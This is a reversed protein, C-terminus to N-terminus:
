RTLALVHPPGGDPDLMVVTSAKRAGSPLTLTLEDQLEAECDDEDADHYLWVFATDRRVESDLEFEHDACGGPYVLRVSLSDNTISPWYDPDAPSFNSVLSYADGFRSKHERVKQAEPDEDRCSSFLLLAISLAAPLIHIKRLNM